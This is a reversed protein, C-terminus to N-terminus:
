TDVPNIEAINTPAINSDMPSLGVEEDDADRSATQLIKAVSIRSCEGGELFTCATFTGESSM